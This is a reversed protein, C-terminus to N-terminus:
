IRLIQLEISPKAAVTDRKNPTPHLKTQLPQFTLNTM